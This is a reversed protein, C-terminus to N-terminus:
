PHGRELAEALQKAPMYGPILRGTDTVISPTGTVGVLEGTKYHEDIPNDCQREPLKRGSKAETMATNRDEACWVSLADRYGRSGVGARPFALYRVKVGLRNLEGVQQHFRRCYPCDIDTFVSVTHRAKEKPAFVVMSDEGLEEIAKLRAGGRREESLNAQTELDVLNGLFLYRGDASAYFLEPGYMIEYLGPIPAPRVSSPSSGPVLAALTRQIEPPVEDEGMVPQLGLALVMLVLLRRMQAQREILGGEAPHHVPM